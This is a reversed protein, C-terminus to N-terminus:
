GKVKELLQSLQFTVLVALLTVIIAYILLSILGSQGGPIASKVYKDVFEKVVNNWALAAVLGFGSTALSLMQRVVEVHFRKEGPKDTAMDTIITIQKM